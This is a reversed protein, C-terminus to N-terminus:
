LGTFLDYVSPIILIAFFLIIVIVVIPMFEKPMKFSVTKKNINSSQQSPVYNYNVNAGYQPQNVNNNLNSDQNDMMNPQQNNIIPENVLPPIYINTNQNSLNTPINNENTTVRYPTVPIEEKKKQEIRVDSFTENFQKMIEENNM